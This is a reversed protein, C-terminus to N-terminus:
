NHLCRVSFASYKTNYYNVEFVSSSDPRFNEYYAYDSNDETSSWFSADNGANEYKGSRNRFGAPLVAFGYSDEGNGDYNWGNKSKLKSGAVERKGVYTFLTNWEATSPLHWDKPCAKMAAEWVYMRGYTDCNGPVDGYCYSKATGENYNYNLNQAMWTQCSSKDDNCIKVTKYVQIHQEDRADTLLAEVSYIDTEGRTVKLCYQEKPDYTKGDCLEYVEGASCFSKAPDYPEMDCVAKILIVPDADGCTVTVTGDGEDKVSCGVGDDGDEGDKGPEGKEGNWITGVVTKGCTVELGELGASNTVSEATCSEGNEGDDGDNGDTGPEGKEGNWITGVVTKGCTVELGELGASNTVPEATCNEGDNGDDGDEGDTGPEGKEGNWITGVVTKGCTVELGDVGAENKVPKATCSEGNEGDSGNEGDTGKLSVWIGGDCMFVMASDMVYLMEGVNASDCKQKSLELGADLMAIGDQHIENVETVETVDDGCAALLAFTAVITTSLLFNKM